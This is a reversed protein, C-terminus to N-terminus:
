IFIIILFSGWIQLFHMIQDHVLNIRFRNAKQHDIYAHMLGQAVIFVLIIIQKLLIPEFYFYKIALPLHVMFSWSYGHCILAAIYDNKYKNTYGPLKLWWSRQKMNALVGQLYYDDVIHLFIMILFIYADNISM